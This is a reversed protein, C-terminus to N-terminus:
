DMSRIIKRYNQKPFNLKEFRKFDTRAQEMWSMGGSLTQNAYKKYIELAESSRDTFLYVHALNLQFHIESPNLKLGTQYTDEAKTFQKSLLYYDGLIGYDKYSARKKAIMETTIVEIAENTKGRQFLDYSRDRILNYFKEIEGSKKLSEESIIELVNYRELQLLQKYEKTTYKQTVADLFLAYYEDKKKLFPVVKQKEIVSLLEKKADSNWGRSLKNNVWPVVEVTIKQRMVWNKSDFVFWLNSGSVAQLKADKNTPTNQVYVSKTTKDSQIFHQAEAESSFVAFTCKDDGAIKSALFLAGASGQSIGTPDPIAKLLSVLSSSLQQNDDLVTVRFVVETTGEPFSATKLIKKENSKVLITENTTRINDWYGEKSQSFAVIPLLFLLIKLSKM